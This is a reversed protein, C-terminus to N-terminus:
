IFMESIEIEGMSIWALFFLCIFEGRKVTNGIEYLNTTETQKLESPRSFTFPRIKDKEIAGGQQDRM